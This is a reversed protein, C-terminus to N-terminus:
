SGFLCAQALLILWASLGMAARLKKKMRAVRVKFCNETVGLSSAMEASTYGYEYYHRLIDLERGSLVKGLDSYFEVLGFDDPALAEEGLLFDMQEESDPCVRKQTEFWKKIKNRATVMLFGPINPHGKLREWKRYALFFVEQTLDEAAAPNNRVMRGIYRNVMSYCAQYMEEYTGFAENEEEM